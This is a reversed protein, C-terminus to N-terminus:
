LLPSALRAASDRFRLLGPRRQYESLRFPSCHALDREFDADLRRALEADYVIANLEYNISFSRIDWNASGVSAVEGDVTITKAHMYGAEYLFMKVGAAAVEQMYTNAAWSPVLQDPGKASVMIEVDVGSLAATKLAETISDDLIFFPSQARIRHRAGTIMAFYQQRIARWRSDPGSVCLQVPVGEAPTPHIPPFDGEAALIEGTANTWDVFFVSQLARVAPGTFRLNTDRWVGVKPGPDVHEDGINLGGTHGIEGDIVAIKRHNRYSITHVRWFPSFPVMRVGAAAMGRRYRPGMHSISGIPDYLIHVAVGEAAKAALIQRLEEGLRDAGWSYYQLHISRRAARLDALLRPYAEAADQLLEVRNGGTVLADASARVLGALRKHAPRSSALATFRAEHLRGQDLLSRALHVPLSQRRLKRTKGFDPHARGFIWYIVIGLAPVAFFLFMWAFATQPRRNESIIYVVVATAYAAILVIPTAELSVIRAGDRDARALRGDTGGTAPKRSWPVVGTVRWGRPPARLPALPCRRRHAGMKSKMLFRVEAAHLGAPVAGAPHANRSAPM